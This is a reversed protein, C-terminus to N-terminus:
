DFPLGLVNHKAFNYSKGSSENSNEVRWPYVFDSVVGYFTGTAIVDDKNDVFKYWKIQNPKDGGTSCTFTVSQGFGAWTEM